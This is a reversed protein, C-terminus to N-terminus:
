AVLRQYHQLANAAIAEWSLYRLAYDRGRLGMARWEDRRAMLTALGQHITNATPKAVVVGCDSAQVHPAVGATRPVLVVRAALMAELASLGFGEYRSPMCVVDHEIMVRPSPMDFVPPRIQVREPFPLQMVLRDVAAREGTWDPGQITLQADHEAGFASFADFLVDLGKNHVSLRGWYLLRAPGQRRWVLDQEPVIDDVSFGNPTEIVPREIGLRRSWVAHRKDLFQIAEARQLLSREVLFWYPWKLYSNKQFMVPHYPGHPAVVFPLRQDQLLRSLSYLSPHFIGNLVVLVDGRALREIYARLSPALRFSRYPAQNRFCRIDYGADSRRCSDQPGECLVTVQAGRMVLGAALGHVAKNTGVRLPAGAAPFHKLYFLVNM